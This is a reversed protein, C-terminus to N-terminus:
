GKIQLDCVIDFFVLCCVVLAALLLAAFFAAGFLVSRKVMSRVTVFPPRQDYKTSSVRLPPRGIADLEVLCSACRM